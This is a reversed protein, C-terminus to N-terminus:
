LCYAGVWVGTGFLLLASFVGVSIWWILAARTNVRHVQEVLERARSGAALIDGQLQSRIASVQERCEAGNSHGVITQRDLNEIYFSDSHDLASYQNVPLVLMGPAVVEHKLPCVRGVADVLDDIAIRSEAILEVMPLLQQGNKTL